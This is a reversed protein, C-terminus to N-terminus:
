LMLLHIATTTNLTSSAPTNNMNNTSTTDTATYFVYLCTPM